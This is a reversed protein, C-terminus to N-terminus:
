QNELKELIKGLIQDIKNTQETILDIKDAEKKIWEIDTRLEALNNNIDNIEKGMDKIEILENKTIKADAELASLREGSKMGFGIMAILVVAAVMLVPSNKRLTEM